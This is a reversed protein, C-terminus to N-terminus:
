QKSTNLLYWKFVGRPIILRVNQKLTADTQLVIQFYFM